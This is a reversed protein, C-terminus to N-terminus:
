AQMMSEAGISNGGSYQKQSEESTVKIDKQQWMWDLLVISFITVLMVPFAQFRLAAPSAFITFAANILWLVAVILIIRRFPTRVRYGKLMIFCVLCCVLVVNMIGTLIPYFGLTYQEAYDLRAMVKGSKYGFWYQAIVDVSDQGGNYRELFEVPPAYYKQATPWLYHVAFEWPYQRIIYSGYDGYLPGMSAWKRLTGATSDRAFKRDEYVKLPLGPTWMYVTSAKIDELPHKTVDRTSDYYARIMNDLAQFRKPVPKRDVSDVYRYIYMANNAMQWGSFPSFQWIGTLAKYKNGTYAIFLGCLLFGAAVGTLKKHLPMRSIGFAAVAIVPYILANYRFTFALFLVLAHAIVVWKNPREVVWLLLAFWTLSLGLFIADSSVLNALYLSLPNLVIFGLLIRKVVKGPQYFYFLSFLLLLASGQIFLYQFIVLATDWSSFVSFLRLFRPYGVPYTDIDANQAAMQLYVFSDGHIYSAFPYCYKFAIFLLFTTIASIYLIRKHEKERVLFDKFSITSAPAAEVLPEM